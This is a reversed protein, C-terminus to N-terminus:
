LASKSDREHSAGPLERGSAPARIVIVGRDSPSVVINQEEGEETKETSAEDSLRDRRILLLRAESKKADAGTVLYFNEGSRRRFPSRGPRKPCRRASRMNREGLDFICYATMVDPSSFPLDLGEKGDAIVLTNPKMSPPCARGPTM